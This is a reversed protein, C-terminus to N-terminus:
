PSSHDLLGLEGHNRAEFVAVALTYVDEASVSSSYISDVIIVLM